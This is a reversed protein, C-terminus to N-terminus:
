FFEENKKIFEFDINEWYVNPLCNIIIIALEIM